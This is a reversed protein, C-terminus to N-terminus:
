YGVTNTILWNGACEAGDELGIKEVACSCSYDEDNSVLEHVQAEAKKCSQYSAFVAEKEVPIQRVNEGASKKFNLRGQLSDSQQFGGAALILLLFTNVMMLGLM